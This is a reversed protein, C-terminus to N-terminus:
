IRQIWRVWWSPWFGISEVGNSRGPLQSSHAVHSGVYRQVRALVSTSGQVGTSSWSRLLHLRSKQNPSSHSLQSTIWDWVSCELRKKCSIPLISSFIIVFFILQQLFRIDRKCVASFLGCISDIVNSTIALLACVLPITTVSSERNNLVRSKDIVTTPPTCCQSHLGVSRRATQLKQLPVNATNNGVARRKQIGKISASWIFFNDYCIRITVLAEGLIALLWQM